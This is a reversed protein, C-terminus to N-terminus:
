FSPKHSYVGPCAVGDNVRMAQNHTYAFVALSGNLVLEVDLDDCISVVEKGFAILRPFHAGKKPLEKRIEIM